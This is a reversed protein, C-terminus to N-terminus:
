MYLTVIKTPFTFIIKIHSIGRAVLADRECGQKKSMPNVEAILLILSLNLLVPNSKKSLIFELSKESLTKSFGDYENIIDLTFDFM